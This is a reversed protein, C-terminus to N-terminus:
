ELQVIASPDTGSEVAGGIKANNWVGNQILLDNIAGETGVYFLNRGSSSGEVVASPSTGSKVQVGPMPYNKWVGEVFLDNILGEAGVYFVNRGSGSDVVASPSTGAKVQAGPMQYNKWVGNEVFLDNILGESGVYFVNRGSGSDVVASPSTGAKVQVGPMQYNKWVGNEVFLDNILGESGVYLVNRGSGTGYVASPSTGSEVQVGPMQYNKWVGNEVFLDNILGESGVYFVNRGSGPAYVASPSTGSKVQVSALPATKWTANEVLLDNIDGEEGVYFINRGTDPAYVAAPSTGSKVAKSPPLGFEKWAGNEIFWTWIHGNAGVYYVNRATITPENQWVRVYDVVMTDPSQSPQGDEPPVMDMVLYEPRSNVNGSSIEGVKTGDYYYTVVGPRWAADYTHWEAYSGSVCAGPASQGFPPPFHYCAQGLHGLGEMTDIENEHNEPLSWLAPWDPLCGGKPCGWGAPAIGPIYVRWEVDGYSSSFGGHGPVGDGPNSEVLSGTNEVSTSECTNAQHKLELYLYGNGPQSVFASSLCQGAMPGSLGGHQWGPTWVSTNLGAASFEENLVLRWNGPVGNPTPEASAEPAAWSLLVAAYALGLVFRRVVRSMGSSTEWSKPERGPM